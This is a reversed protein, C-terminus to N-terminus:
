RFLKAELQIMRERLGALSLSGLTEPSTADARLFRECAAIKGILEGQLRGEVRGEVLGKQM